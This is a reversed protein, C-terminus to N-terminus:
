YNNRGSHVEGQANVGGFAKFSRIVTGDAKFVRVVSNGGEGHACLIEDIGDNDIDAAAIQVEGNPNVAAGFAKFKGIFSGDKDFLKVLNSGDYGTAVAIEVSPDADFNGVAVHVEGGPNNISGYAKFSRILSGFRNFIKVWSSGGEGMGAIIEDVGNNDLDGSALHVEGQTNAKGFAKFIRIFTGDAEFLKVWSKGGEGQSAAIEKDNLDVDFSGIALHLEGNTNAASFAKFTSVLSGDVEFLNVWSKAGEGQGAAIEHHGDGDLDGIALHVEGQSNVAGFAKFGGWSRGLLSFSNLQSKGGLGHATVFSGGGAILYTEGATLRGGPDAMVAGIILDNCGDGNVDGTAAACGFSDVVDDGCVTIDAPQTCLNVISLPSSSGFIVYTERANARGGPSPTSTGIIVDDYGDANVDGSAVALGVSDGYLDGCITIDASDTSLDITTPSAFSKGFIVYTKGVYMREPSALGADPAGIIIDDYGDGNVDGSAVAYGCSDDIAEGYINIDPSLTSLDFTTPPNFSGFIVYVKGPKNAIYTDTPTGIIIDNYCDGNIDEYAVSYGFWDEAAKGLVRVDGWVKDLDIVRQAFLMGSLCLIFVLFVSVIFFNRQEM